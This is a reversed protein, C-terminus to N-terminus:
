PVIIPRIFKNFNISFFFELGDAVCYPHRISSRTHWLVLWSMHSQKKRRPSLPQSPDESIM